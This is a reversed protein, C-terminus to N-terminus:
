SRDPSRYERIISVAEFLLDRVSADPRELVSRLVQLPMSIDPESRLFDDFTSPVLPEDPPHEDPSTAHIANSIALGLGPRDFIPGLPPSEFLTGESDKPAVARFYDLTWDDPPGGTMHYALADCTWEQFSFHLTRYENIPHNCDSVPQIIFVM